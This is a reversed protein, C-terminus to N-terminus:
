GIIWHRGDREPLTQSEKPGWTGAAYNPFNKPLMNEWRAIIPDVTEWMSEVADQRVFLTLDGKICDLLLQEYAGHRKLKFTTHYNFVMNVPYIKNHKYPYKVGFRLTIKEDPQVSLILVNAEEPMDCTRGFLRLPVQKLHLCIETLRKSLRKGARVYFPVGAWRWNDVYFRAAFFTSANSHKSVDKESRYGPVNKSHIKGPGYQGRVVYKDIYDDDMPRICRFVKLKEDRIFEAKFGIPPEMAVLGILQLLHNQVVDRVVGAKEYFTGRHEIGIDEAVTIQINDIYRRNWLHEFTTNSFRFFVINQVPEKSLYHDIRFIQNEDFSRTLIANL